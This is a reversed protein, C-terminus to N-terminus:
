EERIAAKINKQMTPDNLQEETFGHVEKAHKALVAMMEDRTKGEAVFPCGTGLDKCVLKYAM